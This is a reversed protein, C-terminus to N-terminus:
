DEAERLQKTKKSEFKDLKRKPEIKPRAAIVSSSVLIPPPTSDRENAVEIVMEDSWEPLDRGDDNELDVYGRQQQQQQESRQKQKRIQIETFKDRTQIVRGELFGEEDADEMEYDNEVTKVINFDEFEEEVVETM